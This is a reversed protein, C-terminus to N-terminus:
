ELLIHSKGLDSRCNHNVMMMEAHFVERCVERDGKMSMKAVIMVPTMHLWFM